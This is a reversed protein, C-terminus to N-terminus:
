RQLIIVDNYIDVSNFVFLSNHATVLYSMIDSWGGYMIALIEQKMQIVDLLEGEVNEIDDGIFGDPYKDAIINDLIWEHMYCGLGYANDWWEELIDDPVIGCNCWNIATDIIYEIVPIHWNGRSDNCMSKLVDILNFRVDGYRTTIAVNMMRYMDPNNVYLVVSIGQYSM